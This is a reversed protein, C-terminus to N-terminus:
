FEKAEPQTRWRMGSCKMRQTVLTKCAAEVVGSGIPLNEALHEAYRMRSRNNRFYELETQLKSRRPHQKYQYALAKIVKEVGESEEKLIHRYTM